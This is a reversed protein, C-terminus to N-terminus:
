STPTARRFAADGILGVRGRSWADMRIQSVRDFYFETCSDLAALIQPM